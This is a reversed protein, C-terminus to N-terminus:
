LWRPASNDIRIFWTYIIEVYMILGWAWYRSDDPLITDASKSIDLTALISAITSWLTSFVM